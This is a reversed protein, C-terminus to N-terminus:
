MLSKGSVMGLFKEKKKWKYDKICGPLCGGKSPFSISALLSLHSVWPWMSSVHWFRSERWAQQSVRRGERGWQTVAAQRGCARCVCMTAPCVLKLGALWSCSKTYSPVVPRLLNIYLTIYSILFLCIKFSVKFRISYISFFRLFLITFHFLAAWQSPTFYCLWVQVWSLNKEQVWSFYWNTVPASFLIPFM